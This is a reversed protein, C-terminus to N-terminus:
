RFDVETPWSMHTWPGDNIATMTEVKGVLDPWNGSNKPVLEGLEMETQGTIKYSAVALEFEIGEGYDSQSGHDSVLVQGEILLSTLDEGHSLPDLLIKVVDGVKLKKRVLKGEEEKITV